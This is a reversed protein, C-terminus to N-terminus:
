SNPIGKVATNDGLPPVTVVGFSEQIVNIIASVLVLVSLWKTIAFM